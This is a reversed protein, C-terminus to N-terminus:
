LENLDREDVDARRREVPHEAALADQEEDGKGGDAHAPEGQHAVEAGCEDEKRREEDDGEHARAADRGHQQGHRGGGHRARQHQADLRVHRLAEGGPAM